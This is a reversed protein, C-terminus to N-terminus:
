LKKESIVDAEPANKIAELCYLAMSQAPTAIEDMHAEPEFDAQVNVNGDAQDQITIFVKAM